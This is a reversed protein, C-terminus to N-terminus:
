CLVFRREKQDVRGNQTRDFFNTCMINRNKAQDFRLFCKQPIRM